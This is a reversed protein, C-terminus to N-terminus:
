LTIKGQLWWELYTKLSPAVWLRSDDEHKWVFIDTSKIEGKIVRFAFLDGNGADAFFLLHSFPMYIDAYEAQTRISLNEAKIQEVSWLIGLGYEDTVGNSENLVTILEHPLSVALSKEADKIQELNAPISFISNPHLSLITELWM